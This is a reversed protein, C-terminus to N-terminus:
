TTPDGDITMGSAARMARCSAELLRLTTKAVIKQGDAADIILLVAPQGSSTGGHQMLITEIPASGNELNHKHLFADVAIPDVILNMPTM